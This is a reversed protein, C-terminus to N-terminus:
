TSQTVAIGLLWTLKGMNVLSFLSGLQGKLKTMEAPTSAAACMYDVHVTVFSSGASSTRTYICHDASIHIFGIGLM